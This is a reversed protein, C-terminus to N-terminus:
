FSIEEETRRRRILFSLLAMSLLILGFLMNWYVIGIDLGAMFLLLLGYTLYISTKKKRIVENKIISLKRQKKEMDRKIFYDVEENTPILNTDQLFGKMQLGNYLRVDMGYREGLTKTKESFDGNTFLRVQMIGEQRCDRLIYMVDKTEMVEDYPIFRYIVALLADNYKCQLTDREEKLIKVSYKEKITSGLLQIVDATNKQELRRWFENEAIKERCKKELAKYEYKKFFVNGIILTIVVAMLWYIVQRFDESRMFIFLCAASFILINLILLEGLPKQKYGMYYDRLQRNRRWKALMIIGGKDFHQWFNWRVFM